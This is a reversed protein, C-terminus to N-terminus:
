ATLAPGRGAVGRRAEDQTKYKDKLWATYQEDLLRATEGRRMNTTGWFISQENQITCMAMQPM